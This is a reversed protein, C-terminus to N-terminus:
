KISKVSVDYRFKEIDLSYLINFLKVWKTNFGYGGNLMEQIADERSWNHIAIRYAAVVTGTRDSGKMCHVLVPTDSQAIYRVAKVLDDYKPAFVSMQVRYEEITLDGIEDQDHHYQQLNLIRYIGMRYFEKFDDRKPQASRYLKHDVRYFNSVESNEVPTAWQNIHQTTNFIEVLANNTCGSFGILAYIWLISLIYKKM